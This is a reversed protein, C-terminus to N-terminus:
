TRRGGGSGAPRAGAGRRGGGAAGGGAGGPRGRRRRGARRRPAGRGGGGGAGGQPAGGPTRGVGPARRTGGAAGHAGGRPLDEEGDGPTVVDAGGAGHGAGVVVEDDGGPVAGLVGGSAPGLVPDVHGAVLLAATRVAGEGGAVQVHRRPPRAVAVLVVVDRQDRQCGGASPVDGVHDARLADGEVLRAARQHVAEAVGGALTVVALPQRLAALLGVCVFVFVVFVFLLAAVHGLTGAASRPQGAEVRARARADHGRHAAELVGVGRGRHVAGKEPIGHM